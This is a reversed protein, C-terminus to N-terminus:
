YHYIVFLYMLKKVEIFMEDNFVWPWSWIV